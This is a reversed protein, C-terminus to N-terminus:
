GSSGLHGDEGQEGDVGGELRHERRRQRWAVTLAALLLVVLPDSYLRFRDNEGVEVANSM